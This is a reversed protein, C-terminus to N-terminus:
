DCSINYAMAPPVPKVITDTNFVRQLFQVFSLNDSILNFCLCVWICFCLSFLYLYHTNTKIVHFRCLYPGEFGGNPLVGPYVFGGALVTYWSIQPIGLTSDFVFYRFECGSPRVMAPLLLFKISLWDFNVCFAKYKFCCTDSLSHDTIQLVIM